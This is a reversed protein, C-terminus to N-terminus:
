NAYSVVATGSWTTTGLLVNRGTSYMVDEDAIPRISRGRRAAQEKAIFRLASMGEDKLPMPNAFFQYKDVRVAIKMGNPLETIHYSTANDYKQMQGRTYDVATCGVCVVSLAVLLGLLSFSTFRMPQWNEDSRTLSALNPLTAGIPKPAAWCSM